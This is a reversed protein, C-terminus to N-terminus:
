PLLQDFCDSEPLVGTYPRRILTEASQVEPIEFADV